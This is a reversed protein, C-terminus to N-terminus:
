PQKKYDIFNRKKNSQKRCIIGKYATVSGQVLPTPMM